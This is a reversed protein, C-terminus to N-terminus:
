CLATFQWQSPSNMHIKWWVVAAMPLLWVLRLQLRDELHTPTLIKRCSGNACWCVASMCFLPQLFLLAICVAPSKPAPAIHQKSAAIIHISCHYPNCRCEVNTSDPACPSLLFPAPPAGQLTAFTQPRMLASCCTTSSVACQHTSFVPAFATTTAVSPLSTAIVVM